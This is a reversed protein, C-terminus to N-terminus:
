IKEQKDILSTNIGPIRGESDISAKKSFRDAIRVLLRKFLRGIAAFVLGFFLIGGITLFLVASMVIIIEWYGSIKNDYVFYTAFDYSFVSVAFLIGAPLIALNPHQQIKRVIKKVIKKM